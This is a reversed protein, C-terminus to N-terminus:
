MYKSTAAFSSTPGGLKVRPFVKPFRHPFGKGEDQPRQRVGGRGGPNPLSHWLQAVATGCSEWM